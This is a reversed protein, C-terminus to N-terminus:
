HAAVAAHPILSWRTALPRADMMTMATNWAMVLMGFLYLLGGLLRVAYFPYTAKVSRPSPTPRAHWRREFARWM